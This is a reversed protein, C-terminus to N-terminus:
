GPDMVIANYQIRSTEKENNYVIIIEVNWIFLIEDKVKDQNNTMCNRKYDITITSVKWDIVQKLLNLDLIRNQFVSVFKM